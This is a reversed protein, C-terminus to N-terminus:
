RRETEWENVKQPGDATVVYKENVINNARPDPMRSLIFGSDQTVEVAQNMYPAIFDDSTWVTRFKEGDFAILRMTVTPPAKPPVEAWALFWFESAVPSVPFSKVNLSALPEWGEESVDGSHVYETDAVRVFKNGNEKYARFSIADEAITGGGRPLEVGIVIFDGAPLKMSFAASDRGEGKTHGLLADLGAKVQGVTTSSPLFSAMIFRDVENLLRKTTSEKTRLYKKHGEADKWRLASSLQRVRDLHNATPATAQTQALAAHGVFTLSLAVVNLFRKTSRM